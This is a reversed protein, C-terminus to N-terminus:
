GLPQAGEVDSEGPGGLSEGDDVGFGERVRQASGSQRRDDAVLEDGPEFDSARRRPPEVNGYGAVVMGLVTVGIWAVAFAALFRMGATTIDIQNQVFGMLTPAWLALAAFLAYAPRRALM